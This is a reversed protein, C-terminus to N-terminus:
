DIQIDRRGVHLKNERSIIVDGCKTFRDDQEHPQHTASLIIWSVKHSSFQTPKPFEPRIVVHQFTFRIQVSFNDDTRRTKSLIYVFYSLRHLDIVSIYFILSCLTVIVLYISRRELMVNWCCPTLPVVLFLQNNYRRRLLCHSM